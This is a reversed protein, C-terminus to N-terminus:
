STNTKIYLADAIYIHKYICEYKYVNTKILYMHVYIHVLLCMYSCILHSRVDINTGADVLAMICPVSGSDAAFHLATAVMKASVSM